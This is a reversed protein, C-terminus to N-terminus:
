NIGKPRSARYLLYDTMSQEDGTAFLDALLMNYEVRDRAPIFIADYGADLLMGNAVMRATRKNGDFYFQARTAGCFYHASALRPDTIAACETLLDAHIRRLSAGNEGPAPARYEGMGGLNVLGGGRVTGEGRFHGYELAENRAIVAHLEDSVAKSFPFAAARVMDYLHQNARLLALVQETEEVTHGGVTFGDILTQIEPMTYTNNELMAASWVYSDFSAQFRALARAKDPQPGALLSPDGNQNQLTPRPRKKYQNSVDQWKDVPM